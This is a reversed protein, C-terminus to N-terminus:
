KELLKRFRWVEMLRLGNYKGILIDLAAVLLLALEPNLLVWEQLSQTSLVLFSVLALFLTEMTLELAGKWSRTVQAEIFTEALLILILIPFISLSVLAEIRIYPSAMLLGLVGLSVFWLLLAMRPLSPLKLRRLIIRSFTAMVMIGVFLMIGVTVGTALFAVSIIAPTFIGFGQLGVIHRGGAILAAVLPFLLMLVITNAPVGSNVANRIPIKLWNSWGLTGLEQRELVADLRPKVQETKTFDEKPVLKEVVVNDGSSTAVDGTISSESASNPLDLQAMAPQVCFAFLCLFGAVTLWKM